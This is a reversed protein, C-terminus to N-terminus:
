TLTTFNCGRVYFPLQLEKEVQYLSEREDALGEQLRTLQYSTDTNNALDNKLAAIQTQISAMQDTLNKQKSQLENLYTAENYYVPTQDHATHLSLSSFILFSITVLHRLSLSTM